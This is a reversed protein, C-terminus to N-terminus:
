NKRGAAAMVAAAKEVAAIIKAYGTCRCLNGSLAMKIEERGPRPNSDLLAKASLIMGPTCFGCQVAGETIFAEQLPHLKGDPSALGEITLVEAGEAKAAPILCSNVAQGDLLVTCAGCEGKGCGEKTGTLGLYERLLELLTIDAPAEVQYERGNVKLKFGPM